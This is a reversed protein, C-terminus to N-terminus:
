ISPSLITFLAPNSVEPYYCATYLHQADPSAALASVRVKHNFTMTCVGTAIDWAKATKDSSATFLTGGAVIMAHIAATHGDFTSCCEGSEVDWASVSGDTAGTFLMQGDPAIALEEIHADADRHQALVGVCQGSETNWQAVGGQSPTYMISGSPCLVLAGSHSSCPSGVFCRVAASVVAPGRKRRQKRTPATRRPKQMAAAVRELDADLQRQMARAQAQDPKRATPKPTPATTGSDNGVAAMHQEYLHLLAPKGPARDVATADIGMAKLHRKLQMYSLKKVDVM